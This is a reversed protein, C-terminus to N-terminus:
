PRQLNPVNFPSCFVFRTNMNVGPDSVNRTLFACIRAESAPRRSVESTHEPIRVNYQSMLYGPPYDDRHFSKDEFM